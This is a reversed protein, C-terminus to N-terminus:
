ANDLDDYDVGGAYLDALRSFKPGWSYLFRFDNEDQYHISEISSLDSAISGEGEYRYHLQTDNAYPTVQQENLKEDIYDGLAPRRNTITDTYGMNPLGSRGGNAIIEEDTLAYVPKKLVGLNYTSHDEEGATEKYDIINDRTDDPYLGALAKLQQRKRICTLLGLAIITSLLLLVLALILWTYWPIINASDRKLPSLLCSNTLSCSCQGANSNSSLLPSNMDLYYGGSLVNRICGSFTNVQTLSPYLGSVLSGTVPLGGLYLQVNSIDYNKLTANASTTYKCDNISVLITSDVYQYEVHYWTSANLTIDSVTLMTDRFQFRLQSQYIEVATWFFDNVPTTNRGYLLILGDAIPPQIAFDFSFRTPALNSFTAGSYVAYAGGNENFSRGLVQCYPGLPALSQLSTCPCYTLNNFTNTSCGVQTNTYVTAYTANVCDASDVVNVGVFSTQNTDIPYPSSQIARTPRCVTGTPCVYGSCPNPGSATATIGYRSAFLGLNANLTNEIDNKNMSPVYFIVDTLAQQQAVALPLPPYYPSRYQYVSRIALIIISNSSALLITELATRLTNMRNGLSPDILTAPYEGQIRITAAQRVYESDVSTVQLDITSTATSAAIPKTADVLITYSGPYLPDPTSLVGQAASFLQGNSVSRVSYTRGTSRFWDDLDNVYVSGLPTNKLSNIYGNIYVVRITKFGDSIPSSSLVDGVIVPITTVASFGRADTGNFTVTLNKTSTRNLIGNYMLQYTGNYNVTPGVLTFTTPSIIQVIFPVTNNQTPDDYDTFVISTTPNLVGETLIWPPNTPIPGNNNIDIVQITVPAYSSLGAGGQDTAQISFNYINYGFPLDRLLGLASIGLTAENNSQTLYLTNLNLNNNTTVINYVISPPLPDYDLAQITPGNLISVATSEPVQYEYASFGPKLLFVPPRINQQLLIVTVTITALNQTDFAFLVLTYNPTTTYSLPGVVSLQGTGSYQTRATDALNDSLLNFSFVNKINGSLIGFDLITDFDTDTITLNLVGTGNAVTENITLTISSSNVFVPPVDNVDIVQIDFQFDQTNPENNTADWAPAGDYATIFLRYLTKNSERDFTTNTWITGNAAVFFIPPVEADSLQGNLRYQVFNNPYDVDRDFAQIQAIVRNGSENEVVSLVISRIDFTPIQDNEDVLTITTSGILPPNVLVRIYILYVIQIEAHLGRTVVIGSNFTFGNRGVPLDSFPINTNPFPSSVTMISSTQSTLQYFITGNFGYTSNSVPANRNVEYYKERISFNLEEYRADGWRAPPPDNGNNYYMIVTANTESIRPPSGRDQAYVQFTIPFQSVDLSYVGLVDSRLIITGTTQNITFYPVNVTGIYYNILGNSGSDADSAIIRLFRASNSNGFASRYITYNWTTMIFVPPNDNLDLLNIRLSCFSQRQPTGNDMALLFLYWVRVAGPADYDFSINTRLIATRTTSTQLLPQIYFQSYATNRWGSETTRSQESPFSITIQGNDGRDDDFVTITTINAGVPNSEYFSVVSGCIQNLFQPSRKNVATVFITITKSTSFRPCAPQLPLCSSGDDSATVVVSYQANPSSQFTQQLQLVGTSPDISFQNSNMSYIIGDNDADTAYVTGFRTGIRATESISFTQNAPQFIPANVNDNVLNIQVVATSSVPPRNSYSQTGILNFLYRHNPSFYNLPTTNTVLAYSGNSLTTVIFSPNSSTVTIIGGVLNLARGTVATSVFSPRTNITQPQVNFTFVTTGIPSGVSFYTPLSTYTTQDFLPGAFSVNYFFDPIDTQCVQTSSLNILLFLFLCHILLYRHQVDSQIM